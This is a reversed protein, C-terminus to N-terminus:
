PAPPPLGDLDGDGGTDVAVLGDGQPTLAVGSAVLLFSFVGVM